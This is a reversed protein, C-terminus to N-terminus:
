FKEKLEYVVEMKLTIVKKNIGKPFSPFPSLKYILREAAQNLELYESPSIIAVDVVEGNEAFTFNIGVKGEEGNKRALLPYTKNKQIIASIKKLYDAVLVFSDSSELPSIQIKGVNDRNHFLPPHVVSFPSQKVKRSLYSKTLPSPLFAFFKKGREELPLLVQDSFDPISKKHHLISKSVPFFRTKIEKELTFASKSSSFLIELHNSLSIEPNYRIFFDQNTISFSYLNKKQPQNLVFFLEKDSNIPFIKKYDSTILKLKPFVFIKLNEPLSPLFGVFNSVAFSRDEVFLTKEGIFSIMKEEGKIIYRRNERSFIDNELCSISYPKKLQYDKRKNQPSFSLIKIQLSSYNIGKAPTTKIIEKTDVSLPSTKKEYVDQKLHAIEETLPLVRADEKKRIPRILFREETIKKFRYTLKISSSKDQQFYPFLFFIVGVHLVISIIVWRM